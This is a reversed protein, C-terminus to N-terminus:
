NKLGSFAIGQIIHKETIIFLLVIPVLSSVTGAMTIGYQMTYQGTFATLGIQITQKLTSQIYILPALYDNWVRMFTFVTLTALGPGALPLIIRSFIRWEGCGDIRAAVSLEMPIGMFFQRLLFIGFASFAQLIILATHNDYLGLRSILIFQPIMISHWPIMMTSLYIMFLVNKFKFRLRAFAYAAMASIIIQLLTSLVTIKITNLYYLFFPVRTWVESYNQWKPPNPIWRFPTRFVDIDNKLSTSLMWFFPFLLLVSFFAMVALVAIQIIIKSKNRKM